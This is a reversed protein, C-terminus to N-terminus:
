DVAYQPHYVRTLDENSVRENGGRDGDLRKKVRLVQRNM